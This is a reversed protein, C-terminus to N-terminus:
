AKMMPSSPRPAAAFRSSAPVLSVPSLSVARATLLPDGPQRRLQAAPACLRWQREAAPLRRLRQVPQERVRATVPGIRYAANLDVLAYNGARETPRNEVFSDHGAVYVLRGGLELRAVPTWTLGLSGTFPPDAGVANGKLSPTDAPARTIKTQLLGIGITADLRDTLAARADVELGYFISGPLNSVRTSNPNSESTIFFQKNDYDSYFATVGLTVARGFRRRYAAEYTWVTEVRWEYTGFDFFDIGAGGANFGRRATVAVTADKGIGLSLGIKPLFDTRDERFDIADLSGFADAVQEVRSHNFRGGALLSLGGGLGITLDAFLAESERKGRTDFDFGSLLNLTEGRALTGGFLGSVRDDADGFSLTVDQTYRDETILDFGIFPDADNKNEEIRNDQWSSISRLM